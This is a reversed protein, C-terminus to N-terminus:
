KAQKEKGGVKIYQAGLSDGVGANCNSSGDAHPQDISTLLTCEERTLRAISELHTVCAAGAAIPAKREWPAFNTADVGSHRILARRTPCESVPEGPARTCERQPPTYISNGAPGFASADFQVAGIDSDCDHSRVHDACAGENSQYVAPTVWRLSPTCDPGPRLRTASPGRKQDARSTRPVNDTTARGYAAHIVARTTRRDRDNSWHPSRERERSKGM